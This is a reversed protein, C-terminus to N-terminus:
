KTNDMVIGVCTRIEVMIVFFTCSWIDADHNEKPSGNRSSKRIRSLAVMLSKEMWDAVIVRVL